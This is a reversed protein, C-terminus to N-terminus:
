FRKYAFLFAAGSIPEFAANEVNHIPKGRV